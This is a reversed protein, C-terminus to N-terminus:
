NFSFAKLTTKLRDTSIYSDRVVNHRMIQDYIDEMIVIMESEKPRIAVGHKLGYKLIQIENKIVLIVSCPVFSVSGMNLCRESHSNNLSQQQNYEREDSNLSSSCSIEKGDCIKLAM